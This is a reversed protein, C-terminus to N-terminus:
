DDVFGLEGDPVLRNLYLRHGLGHAVPRRSDAMAVGPKEGLPAVEVLGLGTVPRRLLELALALTEGEEPPLPAAAM